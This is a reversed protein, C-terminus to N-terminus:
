HRDIGSFALLSRFDDFSLAELAMLGRNSTLQTQAKFGMGGKRSGAFGKQLSFARTRALQDQM